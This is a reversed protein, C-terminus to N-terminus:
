SPEPQTVIHQFRAYARDVLEKAAGAPLDIGEAPRMASAGAADVYVSALGLRRQFLSASRYFVQSRELPLLWTHQRVVGKRFYLWREDEGYGLGRYRLVAWVLALPLMSLLWLGPRWFYGIGGALTVIAVAYRVFGRRITLRSVPSLEPVRVGGPDPHPLGQQLRNAARMVDDMRGFPVAVKHGREKVDFGMTQVELRYWGFRRMLPNTRIIFAQVKRLPITGTHRSLLGQRHHLKNGEAHLVFGYYRNLNVLIGSLWAFLVALFLVSLGVIFPSEGAAEALGEFRGGAFWDFIAEPDPEVYQFISFFVAIYLMSFRFVGSLIVRRMDMEFVPEIEPQDVSEFIAGPAKQSRAAAGGEASFAGPGASVAGLEASVAGPEASAATRRSASVAGGAAAAKQFQQVTERVRHAEQLSVVDLVGEASQSGATFISVRATGTVRQLIGQEIEINQVRDIPINRRTVTTVGSRIVIEAPSIGYRFRVYRIITWPFVLLGYMAGLALNFWAGGDNSRIAPLLILILAPIGVLVKQVLTMPHLRHPTADPAEEPAGSASEPAIRDQAASDEM